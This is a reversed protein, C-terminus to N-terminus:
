RGSGPSNVASSVHFAIRKCLIYPQVDPDHSLIMSDPSVTQDSLNDDRVGVSECDDGECLVAYVSFPGSRECLLTKVSITTRADRHQSECEYM